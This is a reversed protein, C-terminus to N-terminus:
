RVPGEIFVYMAFCCIMKFQAQTTGGPESMLSMLFRLKM